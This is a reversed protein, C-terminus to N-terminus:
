PAASPGVQHAALWRRVVTACPGPAELHVAHGADPVVALTAGAGISGVLRRAHRVYAADAAGAVVLVPMALAGLRPWLPEQVGAGALRLSSALGRATNSRRADLCRHEEPVGALLPQALWRELFADVGREELLRARAEDEEARRSREEPDDIGATASVVVLGRVVEPRALALHLVLRGGMSYGVYTAPGGAEAVLEAGQWLDVAVDSSSGHGPADVRVVEHDAALDAGLSGWCDRTQTFGHVLVLRPGHGERAVGLM